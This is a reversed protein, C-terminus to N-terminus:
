RILGEQKMAEMVCPRASVRAMYEPLVPWPGLDIRAFGTWNLVTFLYADAVTFAEGMLYARGGLKEALYDFRRALLKVQAEKWAPAADPNFLPGFTKHLESSIFNLWEMLRYRELSGPAPILDSGPKRDAIYQVLVAAETLIQGDDLELAPVSGKPNIRLYDGGDATKKRSLDVKVLEVPLGTERLVIHPALSCAGPTYYLKMLFEKEDIPTDTAATKGDRQTPHV